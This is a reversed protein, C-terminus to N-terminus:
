AAKRNRRRALLALAGIGLISMTGPEPVAAFAKALDAQFDAPAGPIPESPLATNYNQAMKALDLFDTNGDYNVDGTSWQRTGDTVNYSQALRALDLFDVAGDLNLDGSLTYRAIVTNKDVATGMFTDTTAGNAFPLVDAALAYGVATLSNISSSTIGTTGDWKGDGTTPSTPNYGALIQSRVSALTAADNGAAYHVALGNTTLDLTGGTLSLQSTAQTGDGVTLAIKTANVVRAKGATVTLAKVTQAAAADFTATADSVTVGSSAAISGSVSLVGGSVITAATYTNNGAINLTGATTKTLGTAGANIEGVNKLTGAAFTLTDIPTVAGITHGTMDLTGGNLNVSTTTAGGGDLINANTTLTGGTINLNGVATGATAQSALTFTSGTVTLSGGTLNINTTAVGTGTATKPSAVITGTTFSGGSVNLSGTVSGSSTIANNAITTAGSVTFAGGGVNLAATNTATGTGATAGNIRSGLNLANATFTGADMSIIGSATGAFGSNNTLGVTVNNAAVTALHGRLDLTGTIVGATGTGFQSGVNIDAGATGAKNGITVTGPSGATQSAFKVTGDVKSFGINITDANIVNTGTGLTLLGAGGNLGNSHGVSLTTSAITNATNSLFLTGADNQGFGVRVESIPSALTGLSVNALDTLNLTNITSTGLQLSSGVGVSVISAPGSVLLSGGGSVTLSNTPNQTAVTVVYGININGNVTLTKGPAITLVNPVATDTQLGLGGIVQNTNNLDLIGATSAAGIGANGLIITSLRSFVNDAGATLTGTKLTTTGTHNNFGTLTITGLGVEQLNLAQTGNTFSGAFTTNVNTTVDTASTGGLILTQAAAGSNTILGSGAIQQSIQGFNNLDYVGGANVTLLTTNPIANAVGNKLVGGAVTLSNGYNNAPNSLVLIGPGTKTLGDTATILGSITDTVIPSAVSISHNGAGFTVAGSLTLNNIAVTGGFALNNAVSVPNGITQATTGSLITAGDAVTLTGTGIPGNVITPVTGVTSSGFILSGQNLNFGNTFTSGTVTIATPATAGTVISITFTTPSNIATITAGAPVNTGTVSQGVTLGSTGTALTMLASGPTNVVTLGISPALIVSGAGTKNIAGGVSTIPASIILDDPSLGSTNIVPAANSLVLSLGSITPTHGLENNVSTIANASSLILNAGTGAAGVGIATTEVGGSTGNSNFTLSNLTNTGVLTLTGGSTWSVNSTPAIQGQNTVMTVGANGITLDGPIVISGPLGNLSMAGFISSGGNNITAGTYTNSPAGLTITAASGTLIAPQSLVLSTGSVSVVTTGGPINPGGVAMGPVIGAPAATGLTVSNSGATTTSAAIAPPSFTVAVNTGATTGGTAASLTIVNGAISTITSGATINTGSVGMGVFLGQANTVTITTSTLPVSAVFDVVQPALTLTGTGSRALTVASAGNNVIQSNITTTSGNIFAYLTAPVAAGGGATLQGGNITVNTNNSLLGGTGINLVQTADSLTANFAGSFRLSNITRSTVGLVTAGVTINDTAVGATLANGSYGAAGNVGVAVVGAANTYSAFDTGNVTAWGAIIGNTLGTASYNQGNVQTLFVHPNAGTQGVVVTNNPFNITANNQQVLNGVNLTYSGTQNNNNYQSLSIQNFGQALTVAGINQSEIAQRAAVAFTGGFLNIPVTSSIRTTSDSIGTNDILLAGYSINIASTGTLAGSDRLVLSGASQINTSGTYGSPATLVLNGGAGNGFGQKYLSIAGNISGAFTTNIGQGAVTILNAPATSTIIGAQGPLTNASSIREVMQSNGNLDLTGANVFLSQLTPVTSTPQVLLTNAGGNLVVKGGNITLGNAGNAGTFFQPANLSLTGDDAKVIGNTTNTISSNLNLTTAAGVVHIDMTNGGGSTISGVNIGTNGAFALVGAGGLTLTQLGGGSGYNGGAAGFGNTLGGGNFLTLTNLAVNSTLTQQASTSSLGVNFATGAAVAAALGATTTQYENAALPRLGNTADRFVFGTTGSVTDTAIIDPRVAMLTTGALGAGQTGPTAYTGSVTVNSNNATGPAAIGLNDGKILLSSQGNQNAVNVLALTVGSTGASALSITGSTTVNLQGIGETIATGNNGLLNLSGGVMNLTRGTTLTTVTPSPQLFQGGLRNNLPNTTNDLTLTGGTALLDTGFGLKATTGNLAVTGQGVTLTGLNPSNGTGTNDATFTLTGTGIKTVSLLGQVLPNTMTGAFTSDTNDSGVNLTAATVSTNTITGAGTLSGILGSNGRLDLTAGSALNVQSNAVSAFTAAGGTTAAAPGFALTTGNTVSIGNTFLSQGNISIVGGGTLTLPATPATLTIASGLNLGVQLPNIPNAAVSITPSANSLTLFGNLQPVIFSDTNATETIAGSVTLAGIGTLVTGGVGSLDGSTNDLVLNAITNNFSNLNLTAGGKLTVTAGAAIQNSQSFTTSNNTSDTASVGGTIVLNGPIAPGTSSNLTTDIGNLYTTGVYTNPATLVLTGGGAMKGAVVNLGGAVGNDTIVSNVTLAGTGSHLFLESQGAGATLRGSGATAGITAAINTLLGGTTVTLTDTPAGFTLTSATGLFSVTNLTLGGTPLTLASNIRANVGAPLNTASLTVLNPNLTQIGNSTNVAFGPQQSQGLFSDIQYATAWGGIMGNAQNALYVHANDGIGALTGGSFFTVTGGVNHTLSPGTGTGITLNAGGNNPTVTILSSGTNINANGISIAGQVGNRANYSFAGTNFTLPAASPLRNAVAQTGTDTWTLAAGNLNIASTGTLAGLDQLITQGGQLTTAGTYNSASELTLFFGASRIFNLNGNISGAFTQSGNLITQLTSATSSTNTIVGGTNPLTNASNINAVMQTTGNLDLTGGLNVQLIQTSATFGQVGTSQGASPAFFLSQNGGALQLTGGNITTNGTYLERAGLIVTGGDAKTLGGTTGAIQASIGLASTGTSHIILEANANTTIFGPGAITNPTATSGSLNLIGGSLLQLGSGAGVTAGGGNLTLSNIVNVGATTVGTTSLVNANATLANTVGDTAFNLAQFGNTTNYTAFSSGTGNNTTDLLAWALVGRNTVNTALVQTGSFGPNAQTGDGFGATNAALGALALTGLGNGRWLSTAGATRSLAVNATNNLLVSGAADPLLTITSGSNQFTMVNAAVSTLEQTGAANGKIILNGNVFVGKGALRNDLKNATNDLILTGGSSMTITSGGTMAGAAGGLVMTGLQLNTGGTTYIVNNTITLTDQGVKNIGIGTAALGITGTLLIDGGPNAADFSSSGIGVGGGLLSLNGAYVATTGPTNNVLAGLTNNMALGSVGLGTLTLLKTASINQGALDLTAGSAITVGNTASTGLANASGMKLVGGSVTLAGTFTNNGSLTLVNPGVKSWAQGAVNDSVVGSIAIDGYGGITPNKANIVTGIAVNGSVSAATASSNYLAGPAVSNANAPGAGNLVINGTVNSIGNLDLTAGSSYTLSAAGATTAATTIAVYHTADTISTIYAGAGIGAGSVGEGVFLGATSAVTVTFATSVASAPYSNGTAVTAINANGITTVGTTLASPSAVVLGGGNVNLPGTFTGSSGGLILSANGVKTLGAGSDAVGGILYLMGSNTNITTGAGGITTAGVSGIFGTGEANNVTLTSGAGLTLSAVASNFQSGLGDLTAANGAALSVANNVVGANLYGNAATAIGATNYSLNSTAINQWGPTISGATDPGNYMLQVGSGGAGNQHMVVISHMGASLSVSSTAFGVAFGGPAVGTDGLSILKVGDVYVVGQDDKDLAFNYTGAANIKLLGTYHEIDQIPQPGSTNMIGAPHNSLNADSSSVGGVVAGPVLGSALITNLTPATTFSFFRGALGGQTYDTASLAGPTPTIQLTSGNSLTVSGTGFPTSSSNAQPSVGQIGSVTTNTTFTNSGSFNLIGAGINIPRTADTFGGPLIITLGSAPNFSPVGAGSFNTGTFQLRYGNGGTVNLITGTSETLTGFSFLGNTNAGGNNNIDIYANSVAPNITVNNGFNGGANNKLQIVGGNITLNGTGFPKAGTALITGSNLTFGASFTNSGGLTLTGLGNKTIGAGTGSIASGLAVIAQPAAVTVNTNTSAPLSIPGNLTLGAIGNFSINGQLVVPNALTNGAATSLIATNAGMTLTGTGVPGSSVAGNVTSLVSSGGIIVGGATVNVGGGFTNAGNTLQLNGAGVKTLGGAGTITASINLSAQLPAVNQGNFSIAGIDVTKASSGIDLTGSLVPTTTVNSSTVTIATADTLSLVGGTAVSPAVTGGINNYTLSNLANNGVLTVVSGGNLTVAQPAIVGGAVQTVTGNNIALGGAPLTGTAAITLTEQNIVTGGTYTNAGALIINSAGWNGGFAILRVASGGGSTNDAIKSNVTLAAGGNSYYYLDLDSTAGPTSGGATLVGPLASTGIATAGATAIVNNVLLGGSTLNLVDGSNTFTLGVAATTNSALNLSNLVVGGSNVAGGAAIRINQNPQNVAPIATGDYGAFGATNLAGVGLGPIYSAFEATGTNFYANNSTGGVALAWGGIINNTLTPAATIIINESRGAGDTQLGLNGSSNNQYNQAFEITAGNAANRTLSALTLTAAANGASFNSQNSASIISTGQVLTVPGISQSSLVGGRGLYNFSGGSLSIPTAPNLRTSSDFMSATNNNTSNNLNLSAFNITISSTNTLAGSDVLTTGGLTNGSTIGGGNFLTPGGYTLQGILNVLGSGSRAFAVNAGGITGAFSAAGSNVVLTGAGTSSTIAGGGVNTASAANASSLTGVTQVGGNLDLTGGSNVVLTNNFMVTNTAGSALQLTGGNVTTTGTYYQPAALTLSGGDAKNLGATGTFTGNMTATAGANVHFLGEVAGLAVFPVNITNNGGTVLLGGSTLTLTGTGSGGATIGNGNIALANLTQTLATINSSATLKVTDTAAAAPLNNATNYASFATIGTTASYTAFDSGNVVARALIGTTAPLLGPATTFTIKNTATGLTGTFNIASGANQTLTTFAVTSGGGGTGPNMNFTAGGSNFTLTTLTESSAAAGNATYNFTGGNITMARSGLRNNIVTGSDDVNITGGPNVVVGGTAGIKGLGNLTLTGSNSVFNGVMTTDAVSLTVTGSGEQVIQGTNTLTGGSININGAGTLYMSNGNAIGGTLNLTTFADAGILSAAGTVQTILGSWTSSVPNAQTGGVAQLGGGFNIGQVQGTANFTLPNSVTLGGAIQVAASSQLTGTGVLITGSGAGNANTLLIAGQNITTTGTWGTNDANLVLTGADNKALSASPFAAVNFASNLTLTNGSTVEIARTGVTSGLQITRGTAFSKTARLTATNGTIPALNVVNASNGLESDADVSLVGQAVTIDGIFDNAASFNPNGAASNALVMTGAGTKTFGVNGTLAGTLTLGSVQNSTTATTVSFTPAANTMTTTGTVNLGYQNNNNVTLTVAGNTTLAGSEVIYKNLSNAAALKGVSISSNASVNLQNSFTAAVEPNPLTYGPAIPVAIGNGGLGNGDGLLNLNGGSLNVVNGSLAKAGNLQLTTNSNLTVAGTYNGGTISNDGGLILTGATGATLSMDGAGALNANITTTGTLSVPNILDSLTLKSGAGGAITYGGVGFTLGGVNINTAPAITVTGATGAFAATSTDNPWAVDPATGTNWFLSTLDWAGTGGSNTQNGAPDWTLTAPYAPMAAVLLALTAAIMRRALLRLGKKMNTRHTTGARRCKGSAQNM